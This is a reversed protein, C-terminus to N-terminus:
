RGFNGSLLSFSQTQLGPSLGQGLIQGQRATVVSALDELGQEDLLSLADGSTRAQVGTRRNRQYTAEGIQTQTVDDVNGGRFLDLEALRTYDEQNVGRLTVARSLDTTYNRSRGTIAANLGSRRRNYNWNADQLFYDEATNTRSGTVPGNFINFGRFTSNFSNFNNSYGFTNPGMRGGQLLVLDDEM